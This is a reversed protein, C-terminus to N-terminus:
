APLQQRLYNHFHNQRTQDRSILVTIIQEPTCLRKEVLIQGLPRGEELQQPLLENLKDQSILGQSLLVEGLRLGVNTNGTDSEKWQKQLQLALEVDQQVCAGMAVLICGLPQRGASQLDLAEQLQESTIKGSKLLLVGLKELGSHYDERLNKQLRLVQKIHEPSCLQMAILLEGLVQRGRTQIRLAEQLQVRTMTGIKVLWEGLRLDDIESQFSPWNHVRAFDDIDSKKCAGMSLLIRELSQRGVKQNRMANELDEAQIVGQGVLLQGVLAVKSSFTQRVEKQIQLCDEVDKPSCAGMSVLIQGLALQGEHRIKLACELSTRNIKGMFLLIEGLREWEHRNALSNEPSPDLKAPQPNDLCITLMFEWSCIRQEILAQGLSQRRQGDLALNRLSSDAILGTEYLRLYLYKEGPNLSTIDAWHKRWTEELSELSVAQPRSTNNGTLPVSIFLVKQGYEPQWDLQAISISAFSGEIGFVQRPSIQTLRGDPLEIFYGQPGVLYREKTKTIFSLWRQHQRCWIRLLSTAISSNAISHM